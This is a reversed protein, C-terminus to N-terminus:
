LIQSIPPFELSFYQLFVYTKIYLSVIRHGRHCSVLLFSRFRVIIALFPLDSIIYYFFSITETPLWYPERVDGTSKQISVYDTNLLLDAMCM